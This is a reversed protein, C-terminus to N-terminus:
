DLRAAESVFIQSLMVQVTCFQQAATAEDWNRQRILERDEVLALGAFNRFKGPPYNIGSTYGMAGSITEYRVM